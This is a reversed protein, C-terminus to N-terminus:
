NSYTGAIHLDYFFIVNKSGNNDASQQHDYRDLEIPTVFQFLIYKAAGPSNKSSDFSSRFPNEVISSLILYGNNKQYSYISVYIIKVTLSIPPNPALCLWAWQLSYRKKDFADASRDHWQLRYACSQMKDEVTSYHLFGASAEGANWRAQSNTGQPFLVSVDFTTLVQFIRQMRWPDPYGCVKWKIPCFYKSCVELHTRQQPNKLQLVNGELLHTQTNM